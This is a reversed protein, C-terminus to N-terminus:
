YGDPQEPLAMLYDAIAERDAEELRAMHRVVAAMSGGVSDFDPTFGSELLYVINNRSWGGIGDEHPTINPVTGRGEAAVAGAMWRDRDLGGLMGRPTHCEACHALGEVLYQGHRVSEDADALDIAPQEDLNLRKWLGLGRRMNFPFGVEHAPAVGEAAPLIQMFAYLDSVDEPSMRIYATYPFAPYYHRGDPSVGRQVANAFDGLSWAGIGDTEHMSINPAVFTGFDTDFRQGGSLILEDNDSDSSLHCSACGAAWFVAEGNEANGEPLSAITEADLRQPASLFWGAAAAIAAAIVLFALIRAAVKM